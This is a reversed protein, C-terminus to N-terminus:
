AARKLVSALHDAGPKSLSYRGADSAVIFGVSCLRSFIGSDLNIASPDFSGAKDSNSAAERLGSEDRESVRDLTTRHNPSAFLDAYVASAIRKPNRRIALSPGNYLSAVSARLAAILAVREAYADAKSTDAPKSPKEPKAAEPKPEPKPAPKEAAPKAPKPAVNRKGDAIAAHAYCDAALNADGNFASLLMAFATAQEGDRLAIFALGALAGASRAIAIQKKSFTPM